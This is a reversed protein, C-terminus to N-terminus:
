EGGEIIRGEKEDGQMHAVAVCGVLM